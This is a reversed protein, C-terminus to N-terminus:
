EEGGKSGGGKIPKPRKPLKREDLQRRKGTMAPEGVLNVVLRWKVRVTQDRPVKNKLEIKDEIVEGSSKERKM